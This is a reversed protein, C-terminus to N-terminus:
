APAGAPAVLLVALANRLAPQALVDNRYGIGPTGALDGRAIV